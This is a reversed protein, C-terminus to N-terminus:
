QQTRVDGNMKGVVSNSNMIRKGKVKFSSTKVRKSRSCNNNLCNVKVNCCTFVNM